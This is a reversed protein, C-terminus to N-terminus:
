AEQEPKQNHIVKFSTPHIDPQAAPTESITECAPYYDQVTELIHDIRNSIADIEAKLEMDDPLKM